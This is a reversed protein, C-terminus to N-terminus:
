DKRSQCTEPPATTVVAVIAYQHNSISSMDFNETSGPKPMCRRWEGHTKDPVKTATGAPIKTTGIKAARQLADEDGFVMATYWIDQKTPNIVTLDNAEDKAALSGVEITGGPGSISTPPEMGVLRMMASPMGLLYDPGTSYYEAAPRASGGVIEATVVKQKPVMFWACGNLLLVLVVVIALCGIKEGRTFEDSAPPSSPTSSEPSQPPAAAAPPDPLIVQAVAIGDDLVVADPIGHTFEHQCRPCRLRMANDSAPIRLQGECSPCAITVTFISGNTM